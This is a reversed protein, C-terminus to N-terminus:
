ILHRFNWLASIMRYEEAEVIITHKKKKKKKRRRRRHAASLWLRGWEKEHFWVCGCRQHQEDDNYKILGFRESPPRHRNAAAFLCILKGQKTNNNGNVYFGVTHGVKHVTTPPFVWGLSYCWSKLQSTFCWLRANFYYSLWWRNAFFSLYLKFFFTNEAVSNPM